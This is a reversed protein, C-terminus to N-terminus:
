FGKSKTMSVLCKLDKNPIKQINLAESIFSRLTEM